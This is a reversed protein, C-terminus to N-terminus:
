LSRRPVRRGKEARMRERLCPMRIPMVFELPTAASNMVGDPANLILRKPVGFNVGDIKLGMRKGFPREVFRFLRPDAIPWSLSTPIWNKCAFPLHTRTNKVDYWTKSWRPFTISITCFTGLDALFHTTNRVLYNEKITIREKKNTQRKPAKKQDPARKRAAKTLSESRQLNIEQHERTRHKQRATNGSTNCTAM